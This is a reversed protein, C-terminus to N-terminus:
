ITPTDKDAQSSLVFVFELSSYTKCRGHLVEWLALTLGYVDSLVTPKQGNLIEPAVLGFFDKDYTLRQDCAEKTSRM